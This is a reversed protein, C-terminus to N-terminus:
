DEDSILEALQDPHPLDKNSITGNGLYLLLERFEPSEIVDVSQNDAVIWRVLLSLFKEKPDTESDLDEDEEERLENSYKLGKDLVTSVFAERHKSFMHKRFTGTMGDSNRWTKWTGNDSCLKCGVFPTQPRCMIRVEYETEDKTPVREPMTDSTLPRLVYWVDSAASKYDGRGTQSTGPEAVRANDIEDVQTYEPRTPSGFAYIDLPESTKSLRSRKNRTDSSTSTNRKLTTWPTSTPNIETNADAQFPPQPPIYFTGGTFAQQVNFSPNFPPHHLPGHSWWGYLPHYEHFVPFPGPVYLQPYPSPPPPWSWSESNVRPFPPRHENSFAPFHPEQSM